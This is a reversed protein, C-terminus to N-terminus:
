IHILSLDTLTDILEAQMGFVKPGDVDAAPTDGTFLIAEAPLNLAACVQQYIKTEPKISGAEYSMILADADSPLQKLLAPGYSLALNSCIALKYGGARLDNWLTEIRPRITISALEASLDDKLSQIANATLEPAYQTICDDLSLPKRMIVHKLQNASDEQMLGLLKAHSRRKDKIEVLTGFADFCVAKIKPDLTM